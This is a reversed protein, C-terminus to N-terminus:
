IHEKGGNQFVLFVNGYEFQISDQPFVKQMDNLNIHSGLWEIESVLANEFRKNKNALHLSFAQSYKTPLKERITDVIKNITPQRSNFRVTIKGITTSPNPIFVAVSEQNLQIALERALSFVQEDSLDQEPSSNFRETNDATVKPDNLMQYTGLIDKFRGQEIHKKQLVNIMTNELLDQEKGKLREYATQLNIANTNNSVFFDVSRHAFVSSITFFTLLFFPAIRSTIFRM